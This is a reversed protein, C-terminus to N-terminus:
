RVAAEEVRGIEKGNFAISNGVIDVFHEEGKDDFIRVRDGIVEWKACIRGNMQWRGDAMFVVDVAGEKWRTDKLTEATLTGEAGQEVDTERVAAEVTPEAMPELAPEPAAPAEPKFWDTEAVAKAEVVDASPSIAVPKVSAHLSFRWAVVAVVCVAVAIITTRTTSNMRSELEKLSVIIFGIM